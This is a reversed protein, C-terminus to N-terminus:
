HPLIGLPIDRFVKDHDSLINQLDDDQPPTQQGKIPETSVFCHAVWVIDDRRFIAEMWHTSVEKRGANTMGCLVVKKGDVVFTFDMQKFGQTYEDLTEM